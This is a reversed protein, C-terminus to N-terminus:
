HLPVESATSSSPFSSPFPPCSSSLIPFPATMPVCEAVAARARSLLFPQAQSLSADFETITLLSAYFPFCHRVAFITYAIVFNRNTQSRRCHRLNEATAETLSHREGLTARRISLAKTFQAIAGSVDLRRLKLHGISVITEAVEPHRKGLLAKQITLVRTYQMIACNFKGRRRYADGLKLRTRATDRHRECLVQKQIALARTLTEIALDLDVDHDKSVCSKLSHHFGIRMITMATKPDREGLVVKQIALAQDLVKSAKALLKLASKRDLEDLDEFRELLTEGYESLTEGMKVELQPNALDKIRQLEAQREVLMDAAAKYQGMSRRMVAASLQLDCSLRESNDSFRRLAEDASNLFWVRLGEMVAADLDAFGINRRVEEKIRWEDDKNAAEAQAMDVNRFVDEFRAGKELFKVFAEQEAAPLLFEHRKKQVHIAWYEFLCWSRTQWVAKDWPMLLIVARPINKIAGRFGNSWYEFNTIATHQCVSFIDFWVFCTQADLTERECWEVVTEVVLLFAYKWAHSLFVTAPHVHHKMAPTRKLLETYSIKADETEKKVVLACVDATTANDPLTHKTRCEDAFEKLFAVSVGDTSITNTSIVISIPPENASDQDGDVFAFNTSM